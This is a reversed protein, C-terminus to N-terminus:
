SRGRNTAKTMAVVLFPVVLSQVLECQVVRFWALVMAVAQGPLSSSPGEEPLSKQTDEM